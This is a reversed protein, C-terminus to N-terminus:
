VVRTPQRFAPPVRPLRRDIGDLLTALQSGSISVKGDKARPWVFTGKEMRKYYLCM